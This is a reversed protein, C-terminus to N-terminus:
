REHLARTGPALSAVRNAVAAQENFDHPPGVALWGASSATGRGLNRKWWKYNDAPEELQNSRLFHESSPNAISNIRIIM